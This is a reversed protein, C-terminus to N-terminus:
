LARAQSTATSQSGPLLSTWPYLRCTQAEVSGRGLPAKPAQAGKGPESGDAGVLSGRALFIYLTLYLSGERGEWPSLIMLECGMRFM